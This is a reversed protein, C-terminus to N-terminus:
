RRKIHKLRREMDKEREKIEFEHRSKAGFLGIEYMGIIGNQYGNTIADKNYQRNLYSDIKALEIAKEIDEIEGEYDLIVDKSLARNYYLHCNDPSLMIANNFNQIADFEYGLSQLCLGRLEFINEKEFGKELAKDFLELAEEFESALFHKKGRAYCIFADWELDSKDSHYESTKKKFFFSLWKM